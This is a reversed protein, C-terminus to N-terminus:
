HIKRVSMKEGRDVEPNHPTQPRDWSGYPSLFPAGQVTSLDGIQRLAGLGMFTKSLQLRLGCRM